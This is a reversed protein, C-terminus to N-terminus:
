GRPSQYGPRSRVVVNKRTSKIKIKRYTDDHNKNTPYYGLSYQTRLEAAIQSFADPLSLLTDARLVRGGSKEAVSKLYSDAKAYLTDLM